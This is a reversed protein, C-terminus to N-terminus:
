HNLFRQAQILDEAAAEEMRSDLSNQEIKWEHRRKELAEFRAKARFFEARATDLEKEASALQQQAQVLQQQTAAIQNDLLEIYAHRQEFIGPNAFDAPDPHALSYRQQQRLQGLRRIENEIQVCAERCQGVIRQKELVVQRANEIRHERIQLLTQLPYKKKVDM